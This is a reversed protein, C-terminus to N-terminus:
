GPPVTGAALSWVLPTASTDGGASFATYYFDNVITTLGTDCVGNVCPIGTAPTNVSIPTPGGASVGVGTLNLVTAGTSGTTLLSITGTRTGTVKPAFDVVISCSRGVPITAATCDAPSAAEDFDGSGQPIGVGNIFLSATGTNTITVTQTASTTGLQLSGFDLNTASFTAIPAGAPTTTGGGGGGGHSAPAPAAAVALAAFVAAAGALYRRM